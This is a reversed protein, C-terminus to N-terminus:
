RPRPERSRTRIPKRFLNMYDGFAKKRGGEGEVRGGKWDLGSSDRIGAYIRSGAEFRFIYM